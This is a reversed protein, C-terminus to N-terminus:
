KKGVKKERKQGNRGQPIIRQALYVELTKNNTSPISGFKWELCEKRIKIATM